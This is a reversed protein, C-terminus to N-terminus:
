PRAALPAYEERGKGEKEFQHSRNIVLISLVLLGAVCSSFPEIHSVSSSVQIREHCSFCIPLYFPFGRPIFTSFLTHSIM